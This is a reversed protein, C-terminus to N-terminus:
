AKYGGFLRTFSIRSTYRSRGLETGSDSSFLAATGSVGYIM